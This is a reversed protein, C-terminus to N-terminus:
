EAESDAFLNRSRGVARRRILRHSKSQKGAAVPRVHRALEANERVHRRKIKPVPQDISPAEARQGPVQWVVLTAVQKIGM